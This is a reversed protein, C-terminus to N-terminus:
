QRYSDHKMEDSDGANDERLNDARDVHAKANKSENESVYSNTYKTRYYYYEPSTLDAANLVIGLVDARVSQLLNCTRRVHATTTQGFRVVLLVADTMASLLVPDTVSIAPPSDIIVHDYEATWKKLLDQLLTSSLLEAPHPPVPGAPIVFLNSQRTAQIAEREDAGGTLISSLGVKGKLDFAKHITPCRMDAELLLVRKGMQALVIAINLCTM